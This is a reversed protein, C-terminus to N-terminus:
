SLLRKLVVQASFVRNLAQEYVLSEDIVEDTAVVNRRMPLCHMFSGNNTLAMKEKNITWPLEPAIAGYDAYSSWNKTYVFDAGKMAEQQDHQIKVGDTYQEALEFGEPCALTVEANTLKVWELFSNAVAQPLPKPHPAWSLVIKPREIKKEAITILDALSQLPHLTASELSVIPVEAHKVFQQLVEEQYDKERDVLGPFTRVGLIDVYQSMTKVADKVHEQTGGDMVVGDGFELKWGSQNVDMVIVNMGLNQAAKQSSMRTRLSPNFFVLGLTKSPAVNPTFPNSKLQIAEKVLASVDTVDNVSLFNNM